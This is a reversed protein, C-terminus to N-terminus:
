RSAGDFAFPPRDSSARNAEPDSRASPDPQTSPKSSPPRDSRSSRSWSLSFRAGHYDGAQPSPVFRLNDVQGLAREIGERYLRHRVLDPSKQYSAVLAQFASAEARAKSILTTSSAEARAVLADANAKAAPIRRASYHQAEKERTHAEIYASQVADFDAAVQVPASLDQFEISVIEIGASLRALRAQADSSVARTFIDRGSSLLSDLRTSGATKVTSELVAARLLRTPSASGFSFAIPEGVRYRVVIQMHLLNQDGTLVYGRPAKAVSPRPLAASPLGTHPKSSETASDRGATSTVVALEDIRLTDIRDVQLKIVEDFPRPLAYLIGPRHISPEGAAETIRGFRLVLGVENAEIVTVGSLAYLAVLGMFVISKRRWAVKLMMTVPSLFVTVERPSERARRRRRLAARGEISASM